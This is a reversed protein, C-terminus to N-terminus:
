NQFKDYNKPKNYQGVDNFINAYYEYFEESYKESKQEIMNIGQNPEVFFTISIIRKNIERIQKSKYESLKNNLEKLFSLM